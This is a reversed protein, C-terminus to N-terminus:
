TEPVNPTTWLCSQCFKSYRQDREGGNNVISLNVLYYVHKHLIASASMQNVRGMAQLRLKHVTGYLAISILWPELWIFGQLYNYIHTFHKYVFFSALENTFVNLKPALIRQCIHWSISSLHSKECLIHSFRDIKINCFISRHM